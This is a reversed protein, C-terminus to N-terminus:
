GPRKRLNVGSRRLRWEELQEAHENMHRIHRRLLGELTGIEGWPYPGRLALQEPTLQSVRALLRGRVADLGGATVEWPDAGRLAAQMTNFSQIHRIPHHRPVPGGLLPEIGDLIEVEWAALHGVVDRPSWSGVAPETELVTAEFGATVADIRRHAAMLGSTLEAIPDHTHTDSM